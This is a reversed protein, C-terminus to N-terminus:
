DILSEERARELTMVRLNKKVNYTEPYVELVDQIKKWYHRVTAESVNLCGAIEKDQLSHEQSALRLTELWERRMEIGAQWGRIERTHILGERAWEVRRLMADTSSTKDVVTFGGQHLDILPKVRILAKPDATQVTISLSPYKKMCRKLLQIGNSLKSREGPKQPLGLDVILLDPQTEELLVLAEDASSASRIDAESYIETLLSITKERAHTLDEIVVITSM